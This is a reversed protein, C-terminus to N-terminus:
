RRDLAVPYVLHLVRHTQGVLWSLRPSTGQPNPWRALSGGGAQRQGAHRRRRSGRRGSAELGSRKCAGQDVMPKTVHQPHAPRGNTNAGKDPQMEGDATSVQNWSGPVAAEPDGIGMERALSETEKEGGETGPGVEPEMSEDAAAEETDEVQQAGDDM